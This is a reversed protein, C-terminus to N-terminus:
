EVISTTSNQEARVITLFSAELRLLALEDLQSAQRVRALDLTNRGLLLLNLLIPKQPVAVGWTLALASALQSSTACSRANAARLVARLDAFGFSALRLLQSGVTPM